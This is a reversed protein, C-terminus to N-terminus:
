SDQSAESEGETTGYKEFIQNVLEYAEIVVAEEDDASEIERIVVGYQSSDEANLLSALLKLTPRVDNGAEEIQTLRFVFSEPMREPLTFTHGRWEISKADPNTEDVAAAVKAAAKPKTQRPM